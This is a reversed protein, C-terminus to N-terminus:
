EPGGVVVPSLIVHGEINKGVVDPSERGVEIVAGLKACVQLHVGLIKHIDDGLFYRMDFKGVVNRSLEAQFILSDVKGPVEKVFM